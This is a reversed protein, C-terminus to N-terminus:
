KRPRPPFLAGNEFGALSAEDLPADFDEPVTFRGKASGPKRPAGRAALAVLKAAPRGARAIVIEEGAQARAVLRSLQSKADHMNVTVPM